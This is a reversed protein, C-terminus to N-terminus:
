SGPKFGHFMRNTMRAVFVAEEGRQEAGKIEDRIRQLGQEYAEDTLLILQSSSDKKLFYHEFIDEGVFRQDIQQVGPSDVASFGAERLMQEMDSVSPFRALDTEYVGDFYRYFYDTGDCERPDINVAAFAGGPRLVRYASRLVGEHDPFHHFAHVAYVLDFSEEAFPPEPATAQALRYDRDFGQAKRLMGISRDLGFREVPPDLQRMGALSRGTGCGLDLVREAGVRRALDQLAEVVGTLYGDKTREDYGAAVQDYNVKGM